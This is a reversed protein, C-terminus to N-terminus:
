FLNAGGGSGSSCTPCDPPCWRGGSTSCTSGGTGTGTGGTGGSTDTCNPCTDSSYPPPDDVCDSKDANLKCGVMTGSCDILCRASSSISDTKPDNVNAAACYECAFLPVAGLLIVVSGVTFLIRKVM